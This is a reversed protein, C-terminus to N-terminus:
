PRFGEGFSSRPQIDRCLQAGFSWLTEQGRFDLTRLPAQRAFRHVFFLM